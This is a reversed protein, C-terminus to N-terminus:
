STMLGLVLATATVLLALFIPLRLTAQLPPQTRLKAFPALLISGLSGAAYLFGYATGPEGPVVHFVLGLLTPLIPGLLLGLLILGALPRARPSAGALNGLLVAALLPLVVILTRCWWETLFDMHSVLAVLLRSAIFAGWFGTLLGAAEREEQGREALLAFSWLSIAAELPAYFFLVVAATWFFPEAFLVSPDGHQTTIQWQESSPLVGLFAPTLALLALVALTRRLEIKELLIDTLVPTLLAGLAVFVYGLNFAAASEESVFFARPMLVTSATGLASAGFGALLISVFAHPYTPRLSLGVLAVALMVSGAVLIPRAGYIDLLIGSLLVLPILAINLALLWRRSAGEEAPVSRAVALKLRGLLALMMGFILSGGITAATLMPMGTM